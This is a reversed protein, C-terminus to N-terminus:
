NLQNTANGGGAGGAVVTGSSAGLPWKLIRHNSTDAIYLADNWLVVAHPNYLQNLASGAGNGGAVVEGTTSGLKFKM